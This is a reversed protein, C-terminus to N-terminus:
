SKPNNSIHMLEEKKAPINLPFTQFVSYQYVGREAKILFDLDLIIEWLKEAEKGSIYIGM